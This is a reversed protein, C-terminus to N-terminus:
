LMIAESFKAETTNSLKNFIHHVLMKASMKESGVNFYKFINKFKHGTPIQNKIM